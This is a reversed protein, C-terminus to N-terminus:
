ISLGMNELDYQLAIHDSLLSAPHLQARFPMGPM